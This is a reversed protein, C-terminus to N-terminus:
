RLVARYDFLPSGVARPMGYGEPVSVWGFHSRPGAFPLQYPAIFLATPEVGTTNDGFVNVDVRLGLTYYLLTRLPKAPIPEPLITAEFEDWAQFFSSYGFREYYSPNSIPLSRKWEELRWNGPPRHLVDEAGPRLYYDLTPSRVGSAQAYYALANLDNFKGRADQALQVFPGPDLSANMVPAIVAGQGPILSNWALPFIAKQDSPSLAKIVDAHYEALYQSHARVIANQVRHEAENMDFYIPTAGPGTAKYGGQICFLQVQSFYVCTGPLELVPLGISLDDCYDSNTVQPLPLVYQELNFQNDPVGTKFKDRIQKPVDEDRVHTEVTPARTGLGVNLDVVCNTLYMVPNNLETMARQWYREEFRQWAARMEKAAQQSASELTYPVLWEFAPCDVTAARHEARATQCEARNGQWTKMAEVNAVAAYPLAAQTLKELRFDSLEYISTVKSYDPADSSTPSVGTATAAFRPMPPLPLKPAAPLSSPVTNPFAPPIAAQPQTQALGLAGLILAFGIM